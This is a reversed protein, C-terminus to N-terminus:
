DRLKKARGLAIEDLRLDVKAKDLNARQQAVAELFPTPDLEALLQGKKVHSNFDVYLKSIIGSVQSGVAVTTVASLTGAATVTAVVNGREVKGLSFKPGTTKTKEYYAGGAIGAVVVAAGLVWGTRSM